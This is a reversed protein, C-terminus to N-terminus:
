TTQGQWRREIAMQQPTGSFETLFRDVEAILEQGLPTDAAGVVYPSEDDNLGNPVLELRASWPSEPASAAWHFIPREVFFADVRADALADYIRTPDPYAILSGLNVVSGPLDHNAQWRVGAAQLADFAGPDYGCGLVKGELSLLGTIRHDNRRRALVMPHQTYPQSFILGTFDAVPPLASWILDVPAERFSRGFYPLGLCQDWAAEVFEIQVGLHRAFAQAYEIDLGQLAAGPNLRFSLGVFGPEVAIRLRGRTRINQVADGSESLLLHRQSLVRHLKLVPTDPTRLVVRIDKELEEVQSLRTEVTELRQSLVPLTEAVVRNHQSAQDLDVAITDFNGRLEMLAQNITGALANLEQATSDSLGDLRQQLSSFNLGARALVSADLARQALMRVESAVVAFGRGQEGARAAEIAANLAVINIQRAVQEISDIVDLTSGRVRTLEAEGSALGDRLRSASASTDALLREEIRAAVERSRDIRGWTNVLMQELQTARSAGEKVGLKLSGLGRGAALRLQGSVDFVRLLM